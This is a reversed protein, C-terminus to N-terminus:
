ASPYNGEPTNVGLHSMVNENMRMNRMGGDRAKALDVQLQYEQFDPQWDLGKAKKIRWILGLTLLEEDLLGTDTDMTFKQQAVSGSTQSWFKSVYEYAIIKGADGALVEQEFELQNNRIRARRNLSNVTTWGKFFQWEQSNIWILNRQDDRSWQTTPIIYRYDSPLAYDQDGAVMTTLEEKVLIEWPWRSLAEGERNLLRFYQSAESNGVVSDPAPFGIDDCADQVISLLSM